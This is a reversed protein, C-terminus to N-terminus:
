WSIEDFDHQKLFANCRTFHNNGFFGNTASFPSPHASELVLHEGKEDILSKKGRAFNGWLMFVLHKKTTSLKSIVNDTFMSWGFNKHSNAIGSQVTLTNNILLVGQEAWRTLDPNKAYEYNELGYEAQIEKYINQLSPPVKNGEQASFALGDAIGPTHYPDQGLIVVKVESVPVLDFARFINQPDPFITKKTYEERVKTTLEEFYPKEFELKLLSKWSNEINVVM